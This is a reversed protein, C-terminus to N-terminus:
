IRRLFSNCGTCNFGGRNWGGDGNLWVIQNTWKDPGIHWAGCACQEVFSLEPFRSLLLAIVEAAEHVKPNQLTLTIM